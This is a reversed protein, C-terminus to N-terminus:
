RTKYLDNYGNIAPKCEGDEVYLTRERDAEEYERVSCKYRSDLLERLGAEKAVNKADYGVLGSYFEACCGSGYSFVGFRDGPKVDDSNDIMGLMGIFTSGAYTGGM